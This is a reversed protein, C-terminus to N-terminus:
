KHGAIEYVAFEDFPYEAGLRLQFGGGDGHRVPHVIDGHRVLLDIQNLQEVDGADAVNEPGDQTGEVTRDGHEPDDKAADEGTRHM